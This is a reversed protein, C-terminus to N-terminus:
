LRICAQQLVSGVLRGLQRSISLIRVASSLSARLDTVILAEEATGGSARVGDAEEPRPEGLGVDGTVEKCDDCCGGM